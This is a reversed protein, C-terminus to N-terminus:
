LQQKEREKRRKRERQKRERACLLCGHSKSKGVESYLHGRQCRDPDGWSSAASRDTINLHDPNLCGRVGCTSVVYQDSRLPGHFSAWVLRGVSYRRGNWFFTPVGRSNHQGSWKWHDADLDEIWVALRDEWLSAPVDLATPKGKM